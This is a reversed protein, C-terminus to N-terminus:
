HELLAKLSALRERWYRKMEAAAKANPLRVHQVSVESKATGKATVGVVVRSGDDQWDFQLAQKSRSAREHMAAGPLWRERLAADLFATLVREVPAAVTRSASVEFTGDRRVGPPRLGRAQEYEVILKQAWWSSLGHESRLWDAIQRYPRGAAGWADLVGFWERRDRGTARRMGESPRPEQDTPEPDAPARQNRDSGNM